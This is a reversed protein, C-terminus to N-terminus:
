YIKNYTRVKWLVKVFGLDKNIQNLPKNNNKRVVLWTSYSTRTHTTYTQPM